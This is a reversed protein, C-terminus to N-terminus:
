EDKDQNAMYYSAGKNAGLAKKLSLEIPQEGFVSDDYKGVFSSLPNGDKYANFKAPTKAFSVQQAQRSEPLGAFWEEGTQFKVFNREGPKSDAQMVTPMAGGAPVYIADCRGNAHDQVEQGVPVETGHLAVCTLCTRDDLKAVRIKKGIFQGNIQEMAASANRYSTLQLTRTLSEAAWTPINQAHQRMTGAITKPNLGQEVGQLITNRTLDAYGEGWSELRAIWQPSDVFNEVFDTGSPFGWQIGADVLADMFVTRQASQIPNMGAELMQATIQQWVKATVAQPAVIVGSNQIANDNGGILTQAALTVGSYASLASRLQENNKTFLEGAEDLVQAEDDLASLARQMQSGQQNSITAIQKLMTGATANYGSDLVKAIYEQLTLPEAM